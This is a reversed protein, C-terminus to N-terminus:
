RLVDVRQICSDKYYIRVALGSRVPGNHSPANHFCSNNSGTYYDFHVGHVTFSEKQPGLPPSPQFNEVTGEVITSDARLYATRESAYEPFMTIAALLILLAGFLVGVGAIVRYLEKRLITFLAGGVLVLIGPHFLAAWPLTRLSIEFVTQYHAPPM